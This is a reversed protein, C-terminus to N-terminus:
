HRILGCRRRYEPSAVRAMLEAYGHAIDVTAGPADFQALLADLDGFADSPDPKSSM